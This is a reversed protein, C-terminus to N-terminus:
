EETLMFPWSYRLEEGSTKEAVFTATHLGSGLNASFCALYMGEPVSAVPLSTKPDIPVTPTSEIEVFEITYTEVEALSYGDVNLSLRGIVEEPMLADGPELLYPYPFFLVCIGPGILGFPENYEVYAAVPLVNGPQPSTFELYPPLPENPIQTPAPTPTTNLLYFSWTYNLEQGSSKRAIFTATHLGEQLDTYFCLFYPHGEPASYIPENTDSDLIGDFGKTDRMFVYDPENISQNDVKLSFRKFLEETTLFDGEELLLLIGGFDVCIGPQTADYILYNQYDYLPRKSGPEPWLERIFEPTPQPTINNTESSSPFSNETNNGGTLRDLSCSGLFM